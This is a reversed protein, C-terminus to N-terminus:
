PDLFVDKVTPRERMPLKADRMRAAAPHPPPRLVEFREDNSSPPVAGSNPSMDGVSRSVPLVREGPLGRQRGPSEVTPWEARRRGNPSADTPPCPPLSLLRGSPSADTPGSVEALVSPSVDTFVGPERMRVGLARSDRGPLGIRAQPFCAEDRPCASLDCAIQNYSAHPPMGPM